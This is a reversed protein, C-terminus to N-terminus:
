GIAQEMHREVTVGDAPYFLSEHEEDWRVRFHLHELGGLVEIIEGKRAPRDAVGRAIIWDGPRASATSVNSTM